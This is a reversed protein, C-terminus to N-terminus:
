LGVVDVGSVCLTGKPLKSSDNPPNLDPLSSKSIKWLLCCVHLTTHAPEQELDADVLVTRHTSSGGFCWEGKCLKEAM